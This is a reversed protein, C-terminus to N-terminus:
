MCENTIDFKIIIDTNIRFSYIVIIIAQFQCRYRIQIMFNLNNNAFNEHTCSIKNRYIYKCNEYVCYKRKKYLINHYRFSKNLFFIRKISIYSNLFIHRTRFLLKLINKDIYRHFILFVPVHNFKAIFKNVKKYKYIINYHLIIPKLVIILM